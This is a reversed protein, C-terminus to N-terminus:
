ERAAVTLGIGEKDARHYYSPLWDPRCRTCQVVTRSWLPPGMCVSSATGIADYLRGGGGPEAVDDGQGSPCIGVPFYIDAAVM